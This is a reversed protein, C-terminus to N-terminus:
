SARKELRKIAAILKSVDEKPVFPCSEGWWWHNKPTVIFYGIRYEISGKQSGGKHHKKGDITIKRLREVVFAKRGKMNAQEFIEWDERFFYHRGERGIDKVGLLLKKNKTEVYLKKIKTFQHIKKAKWEIFPLAKKLKKMDM